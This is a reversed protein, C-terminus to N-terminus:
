GEYEVIWWEYDEESPVFTGKSSPNQLRYKLKCVVMIDGAELTTQDRCVPVEVGLTRTMYAATDPYGVYSRFTFNHKQLLERVEEVTAKRARYTGPVPMMASNMLVIM